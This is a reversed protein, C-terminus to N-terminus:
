SEEKVKKLLSKLKEKNEARPTTDDAYTLETVGEQGVRRGWTSCCALNGQMDSIIQINFKNGGILSQTGLYLWCSRHTWELEMVWAGTKM